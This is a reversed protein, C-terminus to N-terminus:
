LTKLDSIVKLAYTRPATKDLDYGDVLFQPEPHYENSGWYLRDIVARRQSTKGKWNVYDFTVQHSSGSMDLIPVDKIKRHPRVDVTEEQPELEVLDGRVLDVSVLKDGSWRPAMKIRGEDLLKQINNDPESKFDPSWNVHGVVHEDSM